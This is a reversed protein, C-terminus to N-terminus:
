AGVFTATLLQEVVDLFEVLKREFAAFLSGTRIVVSRKAGNCFM